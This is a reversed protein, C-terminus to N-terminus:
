VKDFDNIILKSSVVSKHYYVHFLCYITKYADYEICQRRYMTNQTNFEIFLKLSITNITHRNEIHYSNLHMAKKNHSM